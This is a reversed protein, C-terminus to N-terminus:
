GLQKYPSVFLSFGKKNRLDKNSDKDFFFIVRFEGIVM